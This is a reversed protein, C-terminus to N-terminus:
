PGFEPAKVHMKVKYRQKLWDYYAQAEGAAWRQHYQALEERRSAEDRPTRPLVAEVQVVAYGDDGLSVGEWAPLQKPDVSLVADLVAAPLDGPQDRSVTMPASLSAAEGGERLARLQAEGDQRALEAARRAVLLARAEDRVEDLPRTRAPQYALVRASVMRHGDLDVAEINQKRELAEPAFLAELVRPDDLVAVQAGTGQRTLGQFTQVPLGLADAVPKFTDSQEYVLNSFTEARESFLKLAQQRKLEAPLTARMEEYPRPQPTRIDTLRIIHFGFETEVLDSIEGKAMAFVADEFPKVMAGRAFFDLDGGRAASGPDQSEAKAVEAFREPDRRLEKLLSQAKARVKDKEEASAGAPVSLLIHSARREEPGALRTANEEYYRRLEAEDIAVDDALAAADLVVYEVDAQEPAQFLAPNDRHFAEVDADSVQVKARYDDTRFQRVRVERRQFFADLTADAVKPPSFASDIVGGLVQRRSLDARVQAEFTEPTLGQRALLQRYADIDLSGDPRRLSAIVDSAQLERALKQDSTYLHMDQAALAVVRDHVMRELTAYRAVDTDFLRVDVGPMEQQRRQVEAQHTQDWEAKSIDLGGVSAVTESREMFRTYGEIGFLVFSPIILILLFGMLYKKRQRITEFM